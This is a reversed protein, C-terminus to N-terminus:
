LEIEITNHIHKAPLSFTHVASKTSQLHTIYIVKQPKWISTWLSPQSATDLLSLSLHQLM